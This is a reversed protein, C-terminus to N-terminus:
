LYLIQKEMESSVAPNLQSYPHARRHSVAYARHSLPLHGVNGWRGEGGFEKDETIHFRYKGLSIYFLSILM